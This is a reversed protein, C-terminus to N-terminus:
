LFDRIRKSRVPNRLKRLAKAEIQRIRERTVKFEKGVEELTRPHGDELGFRLLIVQREREKLESLLSDIHERLMVSEVNGEPSVVNADAVFDGLNSDDEEGIPTELSAPERAIQMIEMVKEETMELADALEAVTPEYGLELTLKRQMKSMKNITEVMHVPVRITRAQDALARTVSQRIWWTAYTSLKFGKTYDFKEVGKILGLNGEQVLDLFSMGRGTYRKAISVVLRLNAEILKQKAYEDGDQKRKALELEEEGSLLAVTGIEKLYMRVPDETGVGELIDIANLDIDEDELEKEFDEVDDDISLLDDDISIDIDVPIDEPMNEVIEIGKTELYSIIQEIAEPSLEQEKFYDNIEDYDIKSGKSSAVEVLTELGSLFAQESNKQEGADTESIKNTLDKDAM